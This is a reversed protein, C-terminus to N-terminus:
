CPTTGSHGTCRQHHASQQADNEFPCSSNTGIDNAVEAKLRDGSPTPLCGPYHLRGRPPRQSPERAGRLTLERSPEAGNWTSRSMLSVDAVHGYLQPPQLPRLHNGQSAKNEM